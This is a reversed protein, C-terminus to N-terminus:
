GLRRRVFGVGGVLGTGLLLISSPEPVPPASTDTQSIVLV